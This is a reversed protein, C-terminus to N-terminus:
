STTIDKIRYIKNIRDFYICYKVPISLIFLIFEMIGSCSVALKSTEEANM